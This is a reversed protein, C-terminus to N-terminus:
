FTRFAQKLNTWLQTEIPIYMKDSKIDFRVKIAENNTAVNKDTENDYDRPPELQLRLHTREVLTSFFKSHLIYFFESLNEQKYYNAVAKRITQMHEIKVFTIIKGNLQGSFENVFGVSIPPQEVQLEKAIKSIVSIQFNNNPSFRAPAVEQKIVEISNITVSTKGDFIKELSSSIRNCSISFLTVANKDEYHWPDKITNVLEDIYFPKQLIGIKM